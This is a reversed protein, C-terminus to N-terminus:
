GHGAERRALEARLAATTVSRLDDGAPLSLGRSRHAARRLMGDEVLNDVAGHLASRGGGIERDMESYSPAIGTREIRDRIFDFLALEFSTM